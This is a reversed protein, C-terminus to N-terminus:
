QFSYSHKTVYEYFEVSLGLRGGGGGWGGFVFLVGGFILVDKYHYKFYYVGFNLGFFLGGKVYTWVLDTKVLVLCHMEHGSNVTTM